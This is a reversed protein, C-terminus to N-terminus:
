SRRNSDVRSLDGCSRLHTHAVCSQKFRNDGRVMEFPCLRNQEFCCYEKRPPIYSNVLRAVRRSHSPSQEYTRVAQTLLKKEKRQPQDNQSIPAAHLLSRIRPLNRGNRPICPRPSTERGWNMSPTTQM